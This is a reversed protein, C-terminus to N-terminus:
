LLLTSTSSYFIINCLHHQLLAASSTALTTNSFISRWFIVLANTALLHVDVKKKKAEKESKNNKESTVFSPSGVQSRTVKKNKERKLHLLHHRTPFSM